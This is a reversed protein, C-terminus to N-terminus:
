DKLHQLEELSQQIEQNEQGFTTSIQDLLTNLNSIDLEDIVRQITAGIDKLQLAYYIKAEKIVENLPKKTNKYFDSTKYEKEFDKVKIIMDFYNKTQIIDLVKQELEINDM